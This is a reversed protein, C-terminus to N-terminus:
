GLAQQTLVKTPVLTGQAQTQPIQKNCLISQGSLPFRLVRYPSPLRFVSLQLLLSVCGVEALKAFPLYHDEMMGVLSAM